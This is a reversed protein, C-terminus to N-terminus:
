RAGASGSRRACAANRADLSQRLRRDRGGHVLQLAQAIFEVERIGGPGLKVDRDLRARSHRSDVKAKMEEIEEVTTFDLFRRYVFPRIEELFTWGLDLDGAVPRAKLMAAREWTQGLSEYYVIAAALSNVIPGNQGEPRLRLDVRFVFGEDSVESLVRTVLEAMRTAFVAGGLAGRPGGSSQSQGGDFLYVLDIDSSFNLERGGLKGM